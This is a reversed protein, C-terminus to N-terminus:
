GSAQKVSRGVAGGGSRATRHRCPGAPPPPPRTRRPAASRPTRHRPAGQQLRCAGPPHRNGGSDGSCDWWRKQRWQQQRGQRLHQQPAKGLAVGKGVEAAGLVDNRERRQPVPTHPPAATCTHTRPPPAGRRYRGGAQGRYGGLAHTSGWLQQVCGCGCAAGQGRGAGQCTHAHTHLLGGSITRPGPAPGATVAAPTNPSRM